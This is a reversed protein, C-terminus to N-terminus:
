FEQKSHRGIVTGDDAAKTESRAVSQAIVVVVAFCSSNTLSGITGVMPVKSLTAM